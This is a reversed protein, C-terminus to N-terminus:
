FYFNLSFSSLLVLVEDKEQADSNRNGVKERSISTSMSHTSKQKKHLKNNGSKSKIAINVIKKGKETRRKKQSTNDNINKHKRKRLKEGCATIALVLPKRLPINDCSLNPKGELQDNNEELNTIIPSLVKEPSASKTDTPSVTPSLNMNKEDAVVCSSTGETCSGLSPDMPKNSCTVDVPSSVPKKGFFKVGLTSVSKGKGKSSSRKKSILKNGFIGSVKELSLSNVGAKSKTAVTKTRARKSISDLHNIPKLQDNEEFCSPCQWKGM